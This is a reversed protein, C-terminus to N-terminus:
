GFHLISSVKETNEQNMQKQWHPTATADSIKPLIKGATEETQSLLSWTGSCPTRQTRDPLHLQTLHDTKFTMVKLTRMSTCYAYPLRNASGGKVASHTFRTSRVTKLTAPVQAHCYTHNCRGLCVGSATRVAPSECMKQKGSIGSIEYFQTNSSLANRDSTLFMNSNVTTLTLTTLYGSLSTWYCFGPTLRKSMDERALRPAQFLKGMLKKWAEVGERGEGSFGQCVM